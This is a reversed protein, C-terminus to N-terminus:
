RSKKKEIDKSIVEAQNRLYDMAMEGVLDDRLNYSQAEESIKRFVDGNNKIENITKKPNLGTSREAM